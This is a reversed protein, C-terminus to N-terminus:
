KENEDGKEKSKKDIITIGFNEADFSALGREGGKVNIMEVIGLLKWKEWHRRVTSDSTGVIKGIEVSGRKGDSLSYIRSKQETDLVESLVLKVDKAAIIKIWKLIESLLREENGGSATDM